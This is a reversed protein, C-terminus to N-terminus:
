SSRVSKNVVFSRRQIEGFTMRVGKATRMSAKCPTLKFLASLFLVHMGIEFVYVRVCVSVCICVFVFVFCVCFELVCVLEFCACM